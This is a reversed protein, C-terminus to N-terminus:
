WDTGSTDLEPNMDAEADNLLEQTDFADADDLEADESAADAAYHCCLAQARPAGTSNLCRREAGACEGCLIVHPPQGEGIWSCRKPCAAARVLLRKKKSLCCHRQQLLSEPRGQAAAPGHQM